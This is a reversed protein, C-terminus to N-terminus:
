NHYKNNHKHRSNSRQQRQSSLPTFSIVVDYCDVVPAGHYIHSPLKVYDICQDEYEQEENRTNNKNSRRRNSSTNNNTNNNTNNCQSSYHKHVGPSLTFPGWQVLSHQVSCTFLFYFNTFLMTSCHLTFHHM